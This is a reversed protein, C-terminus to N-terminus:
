RLNTLNTRKQRQNTTNYRPGWRRPHQQIMPFYTYKEEFKNLNTEVQALRDLSTQDQRFKDLNYKLGKRRHQQIM